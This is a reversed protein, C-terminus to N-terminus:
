CAALGFSTHLGGTERIDNSVPEFCAAGVLGFGV